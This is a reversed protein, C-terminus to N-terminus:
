EVVVANSVPLDACYEGVVVDKSRVKIRAEMEVKPGRLQLEVQLARQYV